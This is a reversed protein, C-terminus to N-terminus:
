GCTLMDLSKMAAESIDLGTFYTLPFSDGSHSCRRLVFWSLAELVILPVEDRLAVQRLPGEPTVLICDPVYM